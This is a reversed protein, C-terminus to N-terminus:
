KKPTLILKEEPQATTATPNDGGTPIQPQSTQPEVNQGDLPMQPQNADVQPKSGDYDRLAIMRKLTRQGVKGDMQGKSMNNGQFQKISLDMIPGFTNDIKGTKSIKLNLQLMLKQLQGVVPGSMGKALYGKGGLVDRLSKISPIQPVAKTITEPSRGGKPTYTLIRGDKMTVTVGGQNNPVWKGEQKISYNTVKTLTMKGNSLFSAVYDGGPTDFYVESNGGVRTLDNKAINKIPTWWNNTAQETVVGDIIRKIQEETFLYKRMIYLYLL